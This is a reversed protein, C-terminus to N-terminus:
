ISEGVPRVVRGNLILQTAELSIAGAARITIATTGQLTITNEEADFVLYDDSHTAACLSSYAARLFIHLQSRGAHEPDVTLPTQRVALRGSYHVYDEAYKSTCGVLPSARHQLM